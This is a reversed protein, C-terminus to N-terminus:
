RPTLAKGVDLGFKPQDRTGRIRIPLVTGAGKKRFFPDVVKLFISKVGGGAAQSITAQMRLVGDFELTETRLGYTGSVRVTAGPIGFAADSLRLVGKSLNFRGRLDSLVTDPKEEPDKGMARQSMGSLRSQVGDDTFAAGRLGFEGELGLRDLVDAPGPPLDLDAHLALRGTMVPADGKVVLRLIDEIRGQDIQVHVQVTRGKVGKTGVVKGRAMLSTGLLTAAVDNLYTDGDTGDVVAQFRTTLPVPNGGVNLRFDQMHTEGSVDIRGLQGGFAGTATLRGGIGKITGMDVDDFTFKGTLPTTGPEERGWPGFTGTTKIMGRPLPNTLTAEFPMPQGLGLSDLTLHQIEFVRPSKDARRPIISLTANEATLRDVLIAARGPMDPTRGQVLGAVTRKFGGPPINIELGTLTVTRFRVPRRLLGLLGGEISFGRISILPPVDRRGKHRIVLGSGSIRVVPVVDVGFSELEVESDLREALTDVVLTRMPATRSGLGAAIVLAGLVGVVALSIWRVARSSMSAM